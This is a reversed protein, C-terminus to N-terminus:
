ECEQASASHLCLVDLDRGVAGIRRADSVLLVEGAVGDDVREKGSGRLRVGREALHDECRPCARGPVGM